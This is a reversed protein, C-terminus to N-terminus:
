GSAADAIAAKLADGLSTTPHGTLSSLDGTEVLLAGHATSQDVDVLVAAVPEPVGADVLAALHEAPPVDAYVVAVGSAETIAAALQGLTFSEDGALEYTRGMHEAPPAALVVAAAEAYDSRSAASIRGDGASGLIAGHEFYTDLQDLYNEFYWDNRLVVAPVGSAAIATETARHEAVLQMPSSDARPASTYVLLAVGAAAAADIVAQHQPVRRGLESGSVLLLQDGAGFAGQLSAVDDFDVRRVTVGREALDALRETARGAAVIDAAPIGRELLDEVVLRGLHGTAGTVVISM